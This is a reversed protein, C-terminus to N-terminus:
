SGVRRAAIRLEEIEANGDEADAVAHLQGALQEAALHQRGVLRSNPRATQWM